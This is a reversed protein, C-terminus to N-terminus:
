LSERAFGSWRYFDWSSYVDFIRSLAFQFDSNNFLLKKM